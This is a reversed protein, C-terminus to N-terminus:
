SIWIDATSYKSLYSFSVYLRVTESDTLADWAGADAPLLKVIHVVNSTEWMAEIAPIHLARCSRALAAAERRDNKVLYQCIRAVIEDILLVRHMQFSQYNTGLQHNGNTQASTGHRAIM